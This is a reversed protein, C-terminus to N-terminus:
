LLLRLLGLPEVQNFLLKVEPVTSRFMTVAEDTSTYTFQQRFMSLQIHLLSSDIEPYKSCIEHLEGSLLCNDLQENIQM